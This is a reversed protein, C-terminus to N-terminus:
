AAMALDSNAAMAHEHEPTWNLSELIQDLEEPTWRSIADTDEYEPGDASRDAEWEWRVGLRNLNEALVGRERCSRIFTRFVLKLSERAEDATDGFGTLGMEEFSAAFLGGQSRRTTVSSTVVVKGERNTVQLTRGKHSGTTPDADGSSRRCIVMLSRLIKECGRTHTRRTDAGGRPRAAGSPVSGFEGLSYATEM